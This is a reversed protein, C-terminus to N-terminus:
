PTHEAGFNKVIVLEGNHVKIIWLPSCVVSNTGFTKLGGMTGTGSVTNITKMKKWHEAVEAPDLSQASEIAQILEWCSNWGFSHWHNAKGGTKTKSRKVIENMVPPMQPSYIDWSAGFYGEAAEAGAIAVVDRINNAPTCFIPGTYGLARATKVIGGIHYPWGDLPFFVDAGSKLAKQVVPTFDQTEQNYEATYIVEFGLEEAIPGFVRKRYAM